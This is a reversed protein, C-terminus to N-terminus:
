IGSGAGVKAPSVRMLEVYVLKGDDGGRYIAWPVDLIRVANSSLNDLSEL